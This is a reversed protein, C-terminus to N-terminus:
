AGPGQLYPTLSLYMHLESHVPFRPPDPSLSQPKALWPILVDKRFQGYSSLCGLCGLDYSSQTKRVQTATPFTPAWDPGSLCRSGASKKEKGTQLAAFVTGSYSQRKSLLSKSLIVPADALGLFAPDKENAYLWTM